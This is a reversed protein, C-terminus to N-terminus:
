KAAKPTVKVKVATDPINYDKDRKRGEMDTTARIPLDFETPTAMDGAKLELMGLPEGKPVEVAALTVHQPLGAATGLRVAGEFPAERRVLVPIRVAGGASININRNLVEIAFPPVVEVRVPPLAISEERGGAPTKATLALTFSAVQPIEPNQQLNLTVENAGKAITGAAGGVIQPPLGASSLTIAETAAPGREATIKLTRSHGHLVRISREAPRLVAPPPETVAALVRASISESVANPNGGPSSAPRRLPKAAAGGQGHIQLDFARLAATATASVLLTGEDSGESILGDEATIDTLSDPITLQIPGPYGNRAAKVTVLAIGNRPINVLPTNVTLSFDTQVPRARLRYGFGLGGRRHLDEVALVVHDMGGPIQVQVKPDLGNADDANALTNGQPGQVTLLADLPAGLSAADVEFVWTQGAAVPFKYRDVEGPQAIRGNMVAADKFWREAAASDPEVLEPADGLVFRFPLRGQISGAAPPVFLHGTGAGGPASVKVRAPQALNGGLLSVDIERGRQGGLPFISEAYDFSGVKLRYYGPGIGNFRSDHLAVLYEGDDPLAIALRCDSRLGPSDDAFALERGAAHYLHAAPDLTSGIRQAEVEVVLRDGKRGAIRFVDQDTGLVSGNVTVPLTLLQPTAPAASGGGGASPMLDNPETETTEPLDGVSFYIVNSLGGPTRVRLPYLGVPAAADLTLKYSIQGSNGGPQEELKGPIASLVEAGAALVDGSLTLTVTQGRQAGWPRLERLQPPAASAPVALLVLLGPLVLSM